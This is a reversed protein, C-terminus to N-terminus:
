KIEKEYRNLYEVWSLIRDGHSINGLVKKRIKTRRLMRKNIINNFLSLSPLAGKEKEGVYLNVTKDKCENKIKEM